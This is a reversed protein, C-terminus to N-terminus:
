VCKGLSNFLSIRLRIHPYLKYRKNPTLGSSHNFRNFEDIKNDLVLLKKEYFREVNKLSFFREFFICKRFSVEEQSM